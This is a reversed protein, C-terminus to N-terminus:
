AAVKKIYHSLHIGYMKKDREAIRQEWAGPNRKFIEHSGKYNIMANWQARRELPTDKYGIVNTM